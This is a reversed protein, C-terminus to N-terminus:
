GRQIIKGFLANGGSFPVQGRDAVFGGKVFAGPLTYTEQTIPIPEPNQLWLPGSPESSAYINWGTANMRPASGQSVGVQPVNESTPPNLSAISVTLLNGPPVMFPLEESPASEGNHKALPSLYVDAVYTIAVRANVPLVYDTVGGTLSLATKDWVGTNLDHLAAPRSLYGIVFPIGQSSVQSWQKESLREYFARKREYRDGSKDKTDLRNAASQFLLRLAEYTVWREIPSLSEAYYTDHTVIQTLRLRARTGNGSSVGGTNFVAALHAQMGMLGIYTSFTALSAELKSRCESWATGCVAELTIANQGPKNGSNLVTQAEPDLALCLAPTTVNSDTFLM